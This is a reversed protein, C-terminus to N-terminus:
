GLDRLTLRFADWQHTRPALPGAPLCGIRYIKRAQQAYTLCPVLLIGIVLSVLVEVTKFQVSSEKKRGRAGPYIWLCVVRSGVVGFSGLEAVAAVLRASQLRSAIGGNAAASPSADRDIGYLGGDQARSFRAPLSASSTKSTWEPGASPWNAMSLGPASTSMSAFNGAPPPSGWFNGGTLRM